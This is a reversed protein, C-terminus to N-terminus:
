VEPDIMLRNRNMSNNCRKVTGAEMQGIIGCYELTHKTVRIESKHSGGEPSVHDVGRM